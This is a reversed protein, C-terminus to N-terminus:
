IITATFCPHKHESVQTNTIYKLTFKKTCSIGLKTSESTQQKAPDQCSDRHFINSFESSIVGHRWFVHSSWKVYTNNWYDQCTEQTYLPFVCKFLIQWYNRQVDGTKRNTLNQRGYVQFRSVIATSVSLFQQLIHVKKKFENLRYHGSSHADATVATDRSSATHVTCWRVTHIYVLLICM